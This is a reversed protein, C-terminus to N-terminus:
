YGIIGQKPTEQIITTFINTTAAPPPPAPTLATGLLYAGGIVIGISLLDEIFSSSKVKPINRNAAVANTQSRHGLCYHKFSNVSDDLYTGDRCSYNSCYGNSRKTESCSQKYGTYLNLNSNPKYPKFNKYEDFSMCPKINPDDLCGYKDSCHPIDAKKTCSSNHSTWEQVLKQYNEGLHQVSGEFIPCM